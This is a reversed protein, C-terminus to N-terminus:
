IDDCDNRIMKINKEIFYNKTIENFDLNSPQNDLGYILLGNKRRKIPMGSHLALLFFVIVDGTPPKIKLNMNRFYRHDEDFENNLYNFRHSHTTWWQCCIRCM